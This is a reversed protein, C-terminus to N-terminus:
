PRGRSRKLQNEIAPLHQQVFADMRAATASGDQGTTFVTLKAGDDGRGSLRGQLGYWAAWRDSATFQGDAWYIQRVDLRDRQTNGTISGDLLSATRWTQPGAPMQVDRQGSVVLQWRSNESPVLMNDSSVLKRGYTQGRYYALHVTVPQGDAMLYTKSATATPNSFVPVFDASPERSALGPLDPLALQVPGQPASAPSPLQDAIHPAAVVLLALAPVVVRAWPATAVPGVAGAQAGSALPAEAWRAGILFMVMVVVGFFVWGYILHDVGVALTNGSLHGIMVIMYARLWNAVLPVALSILCFVLRRWPSNYNLYAYLSGVMFSAILYRVGSCAEVVSWSGSPIVFHLGERYVPIGSMGVAFVTFDATRDMLWPLLFDGFPVMFFLFLLPFLIVLAVQTGLMAPVSLVLLATFAFHTAANVGALDGLMWLLAAGAMPLLMWPSPAPVLPRLDDRRRWILWISIPAVLFAHAFTGSRDWIAIMGLLSDRYLVLLLALVLGLGLLPRFWAGAPTAPSQGIVASM